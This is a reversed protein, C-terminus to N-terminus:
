RSGPSGPPLVAGKKWASMGPKSTLRVPVVCHGAGDARSRPQAARGLNDISVLAAVNGCLPSAPPAVGLGENLSGCEDAEVHSLGIYRLREAPLVSAVAERVRPFIRHPGTHLLPPADEVFLYPNFSLGCAGGGRALNVTLTRGLPTM